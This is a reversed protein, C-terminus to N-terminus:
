VMKNSNSSNDNINGMLDETNNLHTYSPLPTQLNRHLYMYYDSSFQSLNDIKEYSIENKNDIGFNEQVDNLDKEKIPAGGSKKSAALQSKYNDVLNKWKNAIQVNNYTYEFDRLAKTTKEGKAVNKNKYTQEM